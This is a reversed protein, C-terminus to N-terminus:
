PTLFPAGAGAASLRVDDTLGHDSPLARDSGFGTRGSSGPPRHGCPRWRRPHRARRHDRPRKPGSLAPRDITGVAHQGAVTVEWTEGLPAGFIQRTCATAGGGTGTGSGTSQGEYEVDVDSMTTNRVVLHFTDQPPQAVQGPVNGPGVATGTFFETCGAVLTAAALSAIATRARSRPISGAVSLHDCARM